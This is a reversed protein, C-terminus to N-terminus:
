SLVLVAHIPRGLTLQTSWGLDWLHLVWLQPYWAQEVIAFSLFFSSGVVMSISSNQLTAFHCGEQYRLYTPQGTCRGTCRTTGACLKWSHYLTFLVRSLGDCTQWVCVIEPMPPSVVSTSEITSKQIPHTSWLINFYQTYNACWSLWLVGWLPEMYTGSCYLGLVLTAPHFLSTADSFLSLQCVTKTSTVGGHNILLIFSKHFLNIIMLLMRKRVYATKPYYM